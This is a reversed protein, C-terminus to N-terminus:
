AAEPPVFNDNAPIPQASGLPSSSDARPARFTSAGTIM